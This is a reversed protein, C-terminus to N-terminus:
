QTDACFLCIFLYCCFLLVYCFLVFDTSLNTTFCGLELASRHVKIERHKGRPYTNEPSNTPGPDVRISSFLLLYSVFHRRVALNTIITSKGSKQFIFPHLGSVLAGTPKIGVM